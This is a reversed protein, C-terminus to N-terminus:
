DTFRSRDLDPVPELVEEPVPEDAKAQEPKFLFYRALRDAEAEPLFFPEKTRFLYGEVGDQIHKHVTVPPIPASVPVPNIVITM